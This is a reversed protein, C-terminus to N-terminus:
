AKEDDTVVQMSFSEDEAVNEGCFMEGSAAPFRRECTTQIPCQIRRPSYKCRAKHETTLSM